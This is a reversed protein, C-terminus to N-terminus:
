RRAMKQSPAVFTRVCVCPWRSPSRSLPRPSFSASKKAATGHPVIRRAFVLAHSTSMHKEVRAQLALRFLRKHPRLAPMSSFTASGLAVPVSPAPSRTGSDDEKLGGSLPLPYNGECTNNGIYRWNKLCRWHCYPGMIVQGSLGDSDQGTGQGLPIQAIVRGARQALGM